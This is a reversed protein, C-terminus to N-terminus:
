TSRRKIIVRRTTADENVISCYPKEWLIADIPHHTGECTDCEDMERIAIVTQTAVTRPGSKSPITKKEPM